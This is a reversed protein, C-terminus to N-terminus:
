FCGKKVMKNYRFNGQGLLLEFMNNIERIELV